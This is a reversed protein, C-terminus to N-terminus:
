RASPLTLLRKKAKAKRAKELRKVMGDRDQTAIETMIRTREEANIGKWRLIGLAVAAKNKKM